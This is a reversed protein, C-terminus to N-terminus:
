FKSFASRQLADLVTFGTSKKSDAGRRYIISCQSTGQGCVQGSIGSGTSGGTYLSTAEVVEIMADLMQEFPMRQGSVVIVEVDGNRPAQLRETIAAVAASGADGELEDLLQQYRKLSQKYDRQALPYFLGLARERDAPVGYGAALLQALLYRSPQHQEAAAQELLLAAANNDGGQWDLRQIALEYQAQPHKLQEAARQLIQQSKDLNREFAIGERLWVAYTYWATPHGNRLAFNLYRRARKDDRELGEGSAFMGAVIIQADPSGAQAYDLLQSLQQQCVTDSCLRDNPNDSASSTFTILATITMILLYSQHRMTM